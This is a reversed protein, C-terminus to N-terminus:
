IVWLEMLEEVLPGWVELCCRPAHPLRISRSCEPVWGTREPIQRGRPGQRSQTVPSCSQGM